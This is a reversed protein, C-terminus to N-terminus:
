PWWLSREALDQFHRPTSIGCKSQLVQEWAKGELKIKTATIYISVFKWNEAQKGSLFKRKKTVQLSSLRMNFIFIFINATLIEQLLVSVNKESLQKHWVLSFTVGKQWPAYNGGEQSGVQIGMSQILGSSLSGALGKDERDSRSQYTTIPSQPSEPRQGWGQGSRKCTSCSLSRRLSPMVRSGGHCGQVGPEMVLWQGGKVGTGSM